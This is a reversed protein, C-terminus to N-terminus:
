VLYNRNGRHAAVTWSLRWKRVVLKVTFSDSAAYVFAEWTVIFRLGIWLLHIVLSLLGYWEVDAEEEPAENKALYLRAVPSSGCPVMPLTCVSPSSGDRGNDGERRGKRERSLRRPIFCIRCVIANVHYDKQELHGQVKKKLKEYKIHSLQTTINYNNHIILPPTSLFSSFFHENRPSRVM